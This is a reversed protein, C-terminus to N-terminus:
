ESQPPVRALTPAILAGLSFLFAKSERLLKGLNKASSMMQRYMAAQGTVENLRTPNEEDPFAKLFAARHRYATARNIESVKAYEDINEPERELYASALGWGMMFDFALLTQGLGANKIAVEALTPSERQKRPV